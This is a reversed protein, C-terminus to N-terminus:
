PMLLSRIVMPQPNLPQVQLNIKRLLAVLQLNRRTRKRRRRARKRRAKKRKAKKKPNKPRSLRIMM